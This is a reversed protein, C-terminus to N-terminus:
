LAKKPEKTWQNIFDILAKEAEDADLPNAFAINEQGGRRVVKAYTHKTCV